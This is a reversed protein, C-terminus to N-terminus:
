ELWVVRRVVVVVVELPLVLVVLLAKLVMVADQEAVMFGSSRREGLMAAKGMAWCNTTSSLM